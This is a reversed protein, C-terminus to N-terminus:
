NENNYKVLLQKKIEDEIADLVEIDVHSNYEPYDDDGSFILHGYEGDVFGQEVMKSLIHDARRTESSEVFHSIVEKFDESINIPSM